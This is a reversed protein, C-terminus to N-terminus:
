SHLLTIVLGGWYVNQGCFDNKFISISLRLWPLILYWIEKSHSVYNTILSFHCEKKKRIEGGMIYTYSIKRQFTYMNSKFTLRTGPTWSRMAQLCILYSQIWSVGDGGIEVGKSVWGGPKLLRQRYACATRRDQTFHGTAEPWFLIWTAKHRDMKMSDISGILIM